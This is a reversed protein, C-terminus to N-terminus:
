GVVHVYMYMHTQPHLNLSVRASLYDHGASVSLGSSSQRDAM